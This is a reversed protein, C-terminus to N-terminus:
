LYEKQIIRKGETRLWDMMEKNKDHNTFSFIPYQIKKNDEDLTLRTPSLFTWRNNKSIIVKIGRIDIDLECLYLHVTGSIQGPKMIKDKYFEVIEFKKSMKVGFNFM